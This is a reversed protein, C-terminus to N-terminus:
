EKDISDSNSKVKTHISYTNRLAMRAAQLRKLIVKRPLTSQMLDFDPRQALPIWVRGDAGLDRGLRTGWRLSRKLAMWTRINCLHGNTKRKSHKSGSNRQLTVHTPTDGWCNGHLPPPYSIKKDTNRHKEWLSAPPCTLTMTVMVLFSM